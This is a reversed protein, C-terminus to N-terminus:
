GQSPPGCLPAPDALHPGQARQTDAEGGQGAPPLWPWERHKPNLPCGSSSRGPSHGTNETVQAGWETTLGQLLPEHGVKSLAWPVTQPEPLAGAGLAECM